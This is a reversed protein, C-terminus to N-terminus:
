FIGSDGPDELDETATQQKKGKNTNYCAECWKHDKTHQNNGKPIKITNIVQYGKDTKFYRIEVEDCNNLSGNLNIYKVEIEGADIQNKSDGVTLNIKLYKNGGQGKSARESTTTAYLLM